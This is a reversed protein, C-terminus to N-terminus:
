QTVAGEEKTGVADSGHCRFLGGRWGYYRNGVHFDPALRGAWLDLLLMLLFTTLHTYTHRNYINYRAGM